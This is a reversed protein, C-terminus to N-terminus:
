RRDASHTLAGTPSIALLPTALVWIALVWIATAWFRRPNFALPLSDARAMM